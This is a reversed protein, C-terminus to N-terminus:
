LDDFSVVDGNKIQEKSERLGEMVEPDSALEISELKLYLDEIQEYIDAFVKKDITITENEM